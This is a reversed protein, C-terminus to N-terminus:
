GRKMYDERVSRDMKEMAYRLMTRPMDAAHRNLFVLLKKPDKKGAERLMWGVAKHILPHSDQLLIEAIAFTDDIQGSRIFALTTVIAIRRKWLHGSEALRYLISRDGQELLYDGLLHYCSADVLDWNNVGSLHELYFHICPAKDASKRYRSVLIILACLRVEHYPSDLLEALAELSLNPFRRAIKRINPVRVGLFRDGEGYGGPQTQFFIPLHKAKEVEIYPHLAGILKNEISTRMM